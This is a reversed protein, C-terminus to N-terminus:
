RRKNIRCPVGNKELEKASVTSTVWERLSWALVFAKQGKKVVKFFRGFHEYQAGKPISM